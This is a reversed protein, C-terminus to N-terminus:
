RSQREVLTAVYTGRAGGLLDGEWHGTVARDEVDAPRERM